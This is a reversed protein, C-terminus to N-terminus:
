QHFCGLEVVHLCNIRDNYCNASLDFNFMHSTSCSVQFAKIKFFYSLRGELNGSYLIKIIHYFGGETQFDSLGVSPYSLISYYYKDNQCAHKKYIRNAVVVQVHLLKLLALNM